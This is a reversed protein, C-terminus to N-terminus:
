TCDISIERSKKKKKKSHFGSLSVYLTKYMLRFTYVYFMRADFPQDWSVAGLKMLLDYVGWWPKQCHLM